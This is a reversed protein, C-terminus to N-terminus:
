QFWQVNIQRCENQWFEYCVFKVLGRQGGRNYQYEYNGSSISAPQGLRKVIEQHHLGLLGLKEDTVGLKRLTAVAEPSAIRIVAIKSSRSPNPQVDIAGSVFKGGLWTLTLHHYTGPKSTEAKEPEGMLKIAQELNDGYSLGAFSLFADASVQNPLPPIKPEIKAVVPNIKPEVKPRNDTVADGAAAAGSEIRAVIKTHFVQEVRARGVEKGGSVIYLIAGKRTKSSETTSITISKGSTTFVKGKFAFASFAFLFLGTAAVKRLLRNQIM